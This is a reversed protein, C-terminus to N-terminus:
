MDSVIGAQNAPSPAHSYAAVTERPVRPLTQPVHVSQAKTMRQKQRNGRDLLYQLLFFCVLATLTLFALVIIGLFLVPFPPLIFAAGVVSVVAVIYGVAAPQETGLRRDSTKHLKNMM